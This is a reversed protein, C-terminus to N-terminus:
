KEEKIEYPDAVVTAGKRRFYEITGKVNDSVRYYATFPLGKINLLYLNDLNRIELPIKDFDNYGLDLQQLTEIRTVM